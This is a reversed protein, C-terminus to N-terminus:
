RRQVSRWNTVRSIDGGGKTQGTPVVVQPSVSFQSPHKIADPPKLLQLLKSTSQPTTGPLKEKEPFTREDEENENQTCCV